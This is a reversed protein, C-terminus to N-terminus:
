MAVQSPPFEEMQKGQVEEAERGANPDTRREGGPEDTTYTGDESQRMTITTKEEIMKQKSQLQQLRKELQEDTLQKIEHSVNINQTSETVVKGYEESFESKLADMAMRGTTDKMAGDFTKEQLLLKRETHLAYWAKKLAKCAKTETDNFWKSMCGEPIRALREADRLAMKAGLFATKLIDIVISQNKLLDPKGEENAAMVVHWSYKIVAPRVRKKLAMEIVNPKFRAYEHEYIEFPEKKKRVM